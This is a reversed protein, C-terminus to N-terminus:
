GDKETKESVRVVSRPADRDTVARPQGRVSAVLRAAPVTASVGTGEMRLEAREPADGPMALQYPWGQVM